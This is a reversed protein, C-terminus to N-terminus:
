QAADGSGLGVSTTTVQFGAVRGPAIFYATRQASIASAGAANAAIMLYQCGTGSTATCPATATDVPWPATTENIADSSIEVAPGYGSGSNVEYFYAVPLGGTHSSPRWWLTATGAAPGALARGLVPSSPAAWIASRSASFPGVTGNNARIEYTCGHGPAKPAPC